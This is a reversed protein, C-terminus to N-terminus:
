LAIEGSRLFSVLQLLCAPVSPSPSVLFVNSNGTIKGGMEANVTIIGSSPLLFFAGEPLPLVGEKKSRRKLEKSM